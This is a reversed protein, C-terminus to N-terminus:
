LYLIQAFLADTITSNGKQSTTVLRSGLEGITITCSPKTVSKVSSRPITSTKTKQADPQSNRAYYVQSHVRGEKSVTASSKASSNKHRKTPPEEVTNTASSCKRHSKISVEKQVDPMSRRDHTPIFQRVAEQQEVSLHNVIQSLIRWHLLSVISNPPSFTYDGPSCGLSNAFEDVQSVDSPHFTCPYDPYWKRKRVNTL